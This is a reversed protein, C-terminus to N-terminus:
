AADLVESQAAALRAIGGAALAVMRELAERDFPATEATGQLEVFAGDATMVVNMDTEARVDEDYALDLLPRGEVMGVSVAAIQRRVPDAKLKGGAVLARSGMALALWGATIAATRTGGDAQLVDCDVHLTCEGLGDLAVAARLSRAILREIEQTRGNQGHRDRPTREQTSGPLLNYSATLWGKGSRHRWRPVRDEVTLTALVWTAGQRLLVSGAPASLWGPLLTVPRLADDARGDARTGSANSRVTRCANGGIPDRKHAATTTGVGM